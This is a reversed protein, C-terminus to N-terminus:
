QLYVSCHCHSINNHICQPSEPSYSIPSVRNRSLSMNELSVLGSLQTLLIPFDCNNIKNQAPTAWLVKWFAWGVLFYSHYWFRLQSGGFDVIKTLLGARSHQALASILALISRWGKMPLSLTQCPFSGSVICKLTSHSTNHPQSLALTWFGEKSM